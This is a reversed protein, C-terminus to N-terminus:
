QYSIDPKRNLQSAISYCMKAHKIEDLAASHVKSIISAPIGIHILEVAHISFSAISAHECAGQYLWHDVVKKVM